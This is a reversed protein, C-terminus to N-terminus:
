SPGRRTRAARGAPPAPRAGLDGAGALASPEQPGVGDLDQPGRGVPDLRGARVGARAAAAAAVPLVGVQRRLARSLVATTTSCSSRSAPDLLDTVPRRRRRRDFRDGAVRRGRRAPSACGPPTRPRAPRATRPSCRWRECSTTAPRRGARMACGSTTAAATVPRLQGPYSATSTTAEPGALLQHQEVRAAPRPCGRPVRRGRRSGAADGDGPDAAAGPHRPRRRVASAPRRRRTRAPGGPRQRRARRRPGRPQERGPGPSCAARGRCRPRATRRSRQGAVETRAPLDVRDLADTRATRSARRLRCSRVVTRSCAPRRRVRAPRARHRAAHSRTTSSGGRLPAPAATTRCTSPSAGAPPRRRRRRGPPAPGPGARGGRLLAPLQRRDPGEVQERHRVVDLATASSSGGRPGSGGQGPTASGPRQPIKVDLYVERPRRFLARSSSCPCSRLWPRGALDAALRVLDEPDGRDLTRVPEREAVLHQQLVQQAGLVAGVDGGVVIRARPAHSGDASGLSSIWNVGARTIMCSKVPTGQTTSRAVIRSATLSRPPSGVCILGSAGASSTM